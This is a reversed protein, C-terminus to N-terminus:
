RTLKRFAIAIDDGYLWAAVVTGVLVTAILGLKIVLLKRDFRKLAQGDTALREILRCRSEITGHRWSPADRPIGNLDAIRLLTRGFLSTAGACLRPLGAPTPRVPTVFAAVGAPQMTSASLSAAPAVNATPTGHVACWPACNRIDATVTRVGFVDAQREFNRSVWGFGLLWSVLLLGLSIVQLLGSDQVWGSRVLVELVGGTVYMTVLVFLAFYQLHWHRVHGAEHAFVAEIEEEDMTELLADSILVYRMPAFFGMVAANVTMRHTHWLLIERYRLGVRRCMQELRDRLPGAPLPETVWIYRLMVPAVVLVAASVCGLVADAAWPVVFMRVLEDHYKSTFYRAGVVVVMPVTVILLNHRIKDVLFPGLTRAPTASGLRAAALAQLAGRVPANPDPHFAAAAKAPVRLALEAPFLIVWTLILTAFFPTLGVVEAAVPVAGLGWVDRLLRMWPTTLMVGALAAGIMGVLVRQGNAYVEAARDDPHGTSAVARLTRRRVLWAVACTLLVPIVVMSLTSIVLRAPYVLGPPIPLISFGRPPLDESLVFAFAMIVIFYM